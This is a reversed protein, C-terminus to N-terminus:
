PMEKKTPQVYYDNLCGGIRVQGRAELAHAIQAVDIDAGLAQRIERFTALLPLQQRSRKDAIIDVVVQLFKETTTMM